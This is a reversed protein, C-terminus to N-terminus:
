FHSLGETNQNKQDSSTSPIAETSINSTPGGNRFEAELRNSNGAVVNVSPQHFPPYNWYGPPPMFPWSNGYPTSSHPQNGLKKLSHFM